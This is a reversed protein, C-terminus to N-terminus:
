GMCIQFLIYYLYNQVSTHVNEGSNNTTDGIGKPTESNLNISENQNAVMPESQSEECSNEENLQVIMPEVLPRSSNPQDDSVLSEVPVDLNNSSEEALDAEFSNDASFMIESNDSDIRIMDYGSTKNEDNNNTNNNNNDSINNAEAASDNDDNNSNNNNNNCIKTQISDIIDALTSCPPTEDSNVNTENLESPEEDYNSCLASM